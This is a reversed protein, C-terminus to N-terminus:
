RPSNRCARFRFDRARQDVSIEVFGAAGLRQPLTRPDVPTFTDGAHIMRFLLGAFSDAGVFTGGPCLVRAVEALLRDQQLPNPIHHLMTFCFAADFTGDAFPLCIADAQVVRVKTGTTRRALSRATGWDLEVCTLGSAHAGLVESAAGYGSGIELTNEGPGLGELAWPLVEEEVRQRWYGSRCIWHHLRNM